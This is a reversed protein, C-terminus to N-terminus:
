SIDEIQSRLEDIRGKMSDIVNELNGPSMTMEPSAEEEFGPPRLFESDLFVLKKDIKAVMDHLMRFSESKMKELESVYSFINKITDLGKKVEAMATLIIQYRDLKIFIPATPPKPKQEARPYEELPRPMQQEARPYEELPRSVEQRRVPVNVERRTEAMRSRELDERTPLPVDVARKIDELDRMVDTKKKGFLDM